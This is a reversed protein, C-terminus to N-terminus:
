IHYIWRHFFRGEYDNKIQVNLMKGVYDEWKIFKGGFKEQHDPITSSVGQGFNTNVIYMPKKFSSHIFNGEVILVNEIKVNWITHFIEQSM